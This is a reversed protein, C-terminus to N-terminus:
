RFRWTALIQGLVWLVAMLPWIGFTPLQPFGADEFFGWSFTTLATAAFAFSIAEFQIRQQFEDTDRIAQVVVVLTLICALVPLAITAVALNSAPGVHDAIFRALFLMAIYFAITAFLKFLHRKVNM